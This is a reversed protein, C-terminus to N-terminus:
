TPDKTEAAAARTSFFAIADTATEADIDDCDEETVSSDVRSCLVHLIASINAFSTNFKTEGNDSLVLVDAKELKKLDGIKLPFAKALDVKRNNSFTLVFEAPVPPAPERKKVAM